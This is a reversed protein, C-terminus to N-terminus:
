TNMSKQPITRACMRILHEPERSAAPPSTPHTLRSANNLSSAGGVPFMEDGVVSPRKSFTELDGMRKAFLLSCGEREGKREIRFGVYQRGLM